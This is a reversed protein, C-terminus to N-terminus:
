NRLQIKILTKNVKETAAEVQFILCRFNDTSKVIVLINGHGGGGHGGYGGGGHGGGGYPVGGGIGGFGGSLASALIKKRLDENRIFLKCM